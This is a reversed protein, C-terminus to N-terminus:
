KIPRRAIENTSKLIYSAWEKRLDKAKEESGMKEVLAKWWKVGNPSWDWELDATGGELTWVYMIDYDGSMLWYVEPGKTGSAEGAEMYIKMIEQIRSYTGPKFDVKVINHYTVNEYKLAQPEEQAQAILSFALALTFLFLTKKM